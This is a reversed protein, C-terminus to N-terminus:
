CYRDTNHHTPVSFLAHVTIIPTAKLPIQDKLTHHQEPKAQLQRSIASAVSLHVRTAQTGHQLKATEHIVM